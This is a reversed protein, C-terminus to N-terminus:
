DLTSAKSAKARTKKITKKAKKIKKAMKKGGKKNNDYMIELTRKIIEDLNLVTFQKKM